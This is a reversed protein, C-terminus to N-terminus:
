GRRVEVVAHPECNKARDVTKQLLFTELGPGVRRRLLERQTEGERFSSHVCDSQKYPHIALAPLDEAPNLALIEKLQM